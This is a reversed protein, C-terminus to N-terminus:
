GRPFTSLESAKVSVWVQSGREIALERRAGPTVEAVIGPPGGVRVRVRDGLQEVREVRGRWVNRPSGEPRALHLSVARPSARVGVGAGARGTAPESSGAVVLRGGGDLEVAGGDSRHGWWLNVGVLDAVYGSGPRAVLDDATGTQTIRGGELVVLRDALAFADVPDHTVLLHAGPDAGLHDALEHRVTARTTADLSALPEDLLLVAPGVALSRALAVRQAQGGSLEGPRAASRDALGFRDLWGAALRHAAARTPRPRRRRLGFAVNDLASLHPFLGHDQFVLGVSRAETPVDVLVRGQEAAAVVAGGVSVRGHHLPELGALVRLLTTKGAGNPGLVAVTEGPEVRVEVDLEFGPRRCVVAAALGSGARASTGPEAPDAGPRVPSSTPGTM